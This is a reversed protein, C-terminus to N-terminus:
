NLIKGRKKIESISVDLANTSLILEYISLLMAIGLLILAISFSIKTVDQQSYFLLFMTIVSLLLSSVAVIQMIKIVTARFKLQNIQQYLFDDENIKYKNIQFYEM